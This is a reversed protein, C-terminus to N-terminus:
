TTTEIPLSIQFQAGSRADSSASLQGGHQEIIMRCLALGLGLGKAKTTVFPDFIREMEKPDIGPGSDEVLITVASPKRQETRIQLVRSRDTMAEMADISNQVLNVLVEQLQGRHATVLPPESALQTLIVIGNNRLEGHLMQLAELALSNVDILQKEQGASRFLAHINAFIENARFSDREVSTLIEQVNDIAPNPAVRRLIEQAVASNATISGLPQRVEHAIAAVVTELNALKNEREYQLARNARLLRAYVITTESLLVVLVITSVVVSFVRSSYFGLSFRSAIFLSVVAQEAVTALIAVILWLDLVSNRRIWLLALAILSTVLSIGTVYSALPSFSVESLVLRPLFAEGSTVIWTLLCILGIVFMASWYIAPRVSSQLWSTKHRESKLCAYGAVAASFGFHWFTYLWPTSQLGAGLFGKPAFAGPYTLAHPIVILASFLYGNALVLLERWGLITYQGFLLVATTLDTVLITAEVVPVFSDVRVLQKAAFPVVAGFGILLAVAIAVALQRQRLTPPTTAISLEFHNRRTPEAL